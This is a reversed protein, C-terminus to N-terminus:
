KNVLMTSNQSQLRCQEKGKKNKKRNQNQNPKKLPQWTNLSFNYLCLRLKDEHLYLLIIFFWVPPRDEAMSRQSTPAHCDITSPPVEDMSGRPVPAGPLPTIQHSHVWCFPGSCGGLSRLTFFGLDKILLVQPHQLGLTACGPGGAWPGKAGCCSLGMNCQHKSLVPRIGVQM